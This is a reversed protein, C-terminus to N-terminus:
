MLFAIMCLHMPYALYKFWKFWKANYGLKGGYGVIIFWAFIAYNQIYVDFERDGIAIFDIPRGESYLVIFPIAIALLSTLPKIKTDYGLAYIAFMVVGYWGYDFKLTEAIYVYMPISIIYAMVPLIHVEKIHKKLEFVSLIVLFGILLEFYINQNRWYVWSDYFVYDYIPESIIALIALRSFYKIKNKSHAFGEILMFAFIPFALRGICRMTTDNNMLVNGVHDIVMTTLAIMYLLASSLGFSNDKEM